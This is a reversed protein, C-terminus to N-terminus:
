AAQKNRLAELPGAGMELGKTNRELSGAGMRSRTGSAKELSGADMDVSPTQAALSRRDVSNRCIAAGAKGRNKCASAARACRNYM